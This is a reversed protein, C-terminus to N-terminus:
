SDNTHYGAGLPTAMMLGLLIIILGIHLCALPMCLWLWASEAIDALVLYLIVLGFTLFSGILFTMGVLLPLGRYRAFYSTFDVLFKSLRESSDFRQLM